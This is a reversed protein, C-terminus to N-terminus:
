KGIAEAAATRAAAAAQAAKDAALKKVEKHGAALLMGQLAFGVLLLPKFHIRHSVHTIGNILRGQWRNAYIERVNFSHNLWGMARTDLGSKMRDKLAALGEEKGPFLDDLLQKAHSVITKPADQGGDHWTQQIKAIQGYPGSETSLKGEKVMRKISRDGIRTLPISAIGAPIGILIGGPLFCVGLAAAAPIYKWALAKVVERNEGNRAHTWLIRGAQVIQKGSASVHRVGSTRVAQEAGDAVPSEGAFQVRAKGRSGSSNGFYPNATAPSGTRPTISGPNM